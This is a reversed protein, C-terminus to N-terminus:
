ARWSRRGREERTAMEALTTAFMTDSAPASRTSVMSRCASWIWPNKLMGTSLM